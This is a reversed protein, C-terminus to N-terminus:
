HHPYSQVPPRYVGHTPPHQMRQQLHFALTAHAPVTLDTLNELRMMRMTRKSQYESESKADASAPGTAPHKPNLYSPIEIEPTKKRLVVCFLIVAAVVIVVVCGVAIGVIVGTSIGSSTSPAPTPQVSPVGDRRSADVVVSTASSLIVTPPLSRAAFQSNINTATMLSVTTAAQASGGLQDIGLILSTTPALLRRASTQQITVTMRCHECQVPNIGYSGCVGCSSLYAFTSVINEKQTTVAAASLPISVSVYVVYINVGQAVCSGDVLAFMTRCNFTCSDTFGGDTIWDANAPLGSPSCGVCIGPNSGSCSQKFFGAGCNSCDTHPCSGTFGGDDSYFYPTQCLVLPMILLLVGINCLM